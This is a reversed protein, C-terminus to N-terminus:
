SNLFAMNESKLADLRKGEIIAFTGQDGALKLMDLKWRSRGLEGLKVQVQV